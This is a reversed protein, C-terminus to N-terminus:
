ATRSDSSAASLASFHCTLFALDSRSTSYLKCRATTPASGEGTVAFSTVKPLLLTLATWRATFMCVASFETSLLGRSGRERGWNLSMNVDFLM